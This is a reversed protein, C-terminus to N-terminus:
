RRRWGGGSRNRPSSVPKWRMAWVWCNSQRTGRAGSTKGRVQIKGLTLEESFQMLDWGAVDKIASTIFKTCIARESLTKKDIFDRNTM